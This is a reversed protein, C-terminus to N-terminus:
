EEANHADTSFYVVINQTLELSKKKAKTSCTHTYLFPRALFQLSTWGCALSKNVIENFVVFPYVKVKDNECKKNNATSRSDSRKQFNARSKYLSGQLQLFSVM